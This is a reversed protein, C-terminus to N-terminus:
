VTRSLVMRYMPLGQRLVSQERETLLGTPNDRLWQQAAWTSSVPAQQRRSPSVAADAATSPAEKALPLVVPPHEESEPFTTMETHLPSVQLSTSAHQEFRMRMDVAVEHVDSSLYVNGNPALREAIANVLSPQVIRRKHHRGHLVM